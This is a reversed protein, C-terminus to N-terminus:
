GSNFGSQQFKVTFIIEPFNVIQLLFSVFNVHAELLGCRVNEEKKM